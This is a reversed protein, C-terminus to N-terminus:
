RHHHKGGGPGGGGGGGPGGGGGGPGGGGGGPGGGKGHPPEILVTIADLTLPGAQSGVVTVHDGSGLSSLSLTSPNVGREHYTTSGTVDITWARATGTLTTATGTLSWVPRVPITFYDGGVTGVAGTALELPIVVLNANVIGPGARRGEVTVKDGVVIDSLGHSTMGPALFRTYQSVNITLGTAIATIFTTATGTVPAPAIPGIGRTLTFSTTGVSGVTGSVIVLHRFGGRGGGGFGSGGGQNGGGQNGGGQNGGGQNGGGGGGPGHHGAPLVSASAAALGAAPMVVAVGAVLGLSLVLRATTRVISRRRFRDDGLASGLVRSSM